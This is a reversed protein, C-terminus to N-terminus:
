ELDDLDVEDMDRVNVQGQEDICTLAEEGEVEDVMCKEGDVSFTEGKEYGMFDICRGCFM